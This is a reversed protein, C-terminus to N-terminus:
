QVYDYLSEVAVSNRGPVDHYRVDMNVLVDRNGGFDIHEVYAPPAPIGGYVLNHTMELVPASPPPPTPPLTPFKNGKSRNKKATKCSSPFPVSRM